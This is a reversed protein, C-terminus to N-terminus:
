PLEIYPTIDWVIVENGSTFMILKTGDASFRSTLVQFDTELINLLQGNSTSWIYEWTALYRGDPSLSFERLTREEDYIIYSIEGNTETDYIRITDGAVALARIHGSDSIQEFESGFERNQYQSTLEDSIEGTTTNIVVAAPPAGSLLLIHDNDVYEVQLFFRLPQRGQYPLETVSSDVLDILIPSFGIVVIQEGNPSIAIANIRNNELTFEHLPALAISVISVPLNLEPLNDPDAFTENLWATFEDATVPTGYLIPTAVDVSSPCDREAGHLVRYAVIDNSALDTVTLEADIRMMTISFPSGTDNRRYDCRQLGGAIKWSVHIHHTASSQSEAIWIEPIATSFDGGNNALFELGNEAEWTLTMQLSGQAFSVVSNLFIVLVFLIFFLRNIMM